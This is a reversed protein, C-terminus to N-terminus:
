TLAERTLAGPLVAGMGIIAISQEDASAHSPKVVTNRVEFRAGRGTTAKASVYDDVVVHVNLGGIGFSNVGARRAKDSKPWAIARDSAVFPMAQWDVDSTLRSGARLAPPITHHELALVTKILGTLGACELTHGVNLKVSGIPLKKGSRLHPGFATTLAKLETVDGLNTSTAHAEVYQVDAMPVHENYARQIALVQGEYRPAWLSKGHGDSSGGISPVVALVRDGEAVARDLSKLVVATYGEGIIMGDAQDTFPCSGRPSLSHSQSFMVSTGVHYFSAGGVIAMDIQGHQIARMAQLLARSSSACASNFAMCPGNLALVKAVLRAAHSVGVCFGDAPQEREFPRRITEITERIVEDGLGDALQDFGVTDRLYKATQGIYAALTYEGLFGSLSASGVYVGTNEHPMHRPDLGAHRCAKAAVECLTLHALDYSTADSDTIPCVDRDVPRYDVLAALDSYAKNLTGRKPDFYRQRHFRDEPVPGWAIAGAHVLKWFEDLDNAGPLRCAMGIIAVASRGQAACM